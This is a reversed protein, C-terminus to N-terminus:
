PGARLGRETRGALGYRANRRHEEAVRSEPRRESREAARQEEGAGGHRAVASGCQLRRWGRELLVGADDFRQRGGDQVHGDGVIERRQERLDLGDHRPAHPPEVLAHWQGRVAADLEGELGAAVTETGVEIAVGRPDGRQDVVAAAAPVIRGDARGDARGAAGALVVRRRAGDERQGRGDRQGLLPSQAGAGSHM